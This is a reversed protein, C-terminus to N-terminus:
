LETELGQRCHPCLGHSVRAGNDILWRDTESDPEKCWGCAHAVPLAHRADPARKVEWALWFGGVGAVCAVAAILANM